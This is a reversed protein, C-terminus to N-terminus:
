LAVEFGSARGNAATSEPLSRGDLPNRLFDAYCARVAELDHSELADVVREHDAVVNGRWNRWLRNMTLPSVAMSLLETLRNSGALSWLTRHYRVDIEPLADLDARADADRMEAILGRLTAIEAPTIRRLILEVAFEEMRIRLGVLANIEEPSPGAVCAGGRACYTILGEVALQKIADRVPGRSVNLRAALETEVIREGPRLRDTSILSRLTDAVQGGLPQRRIQPFGEDPESVSIV